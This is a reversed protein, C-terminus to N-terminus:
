LRDLMEPLVEAAPSRGDRNESAFGTPATWVRDMADVARSSEDSWGPQARRRADHHQDTRERRTGRSNEIFGYPVALFRSRSSTTSRTLKSMASSDRSTGERAMRGCSRTCTSM